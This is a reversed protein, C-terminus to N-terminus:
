NRYPPAAAYDPPSDAETSAAEALREALRHNDVRAADLDAEAREARIRLTDRSEELATIRATTAATLHDLAQRHDTRIRAAQDEGTAEIPASGKSRPRRTLARSAVADPKAKIRRAHGPCDPV